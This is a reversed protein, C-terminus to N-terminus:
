IQFNNNQLEQLQQRLKGNEERETKLEIILVEHVTRFAALQHKLMIVEYTEKTETQVTVDKQYTNTDTEVQM